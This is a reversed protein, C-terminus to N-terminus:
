DTCCVDLDNKNKLKEHLLDSARFNKVGKGLHEDNGFQGISEINKWDSDSSKKCTSVSLRIRINIPFPPPDLLAM